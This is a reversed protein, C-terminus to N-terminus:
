MSGTAAERIVALAAAVAGPLSLGCDDNFQILSDGDDREDYAGVAWSEPSPLGAETSMEGATVMVHFGEGEPGPIRAGIAGGGMIEPEAGLQDVLLARHAPHLTAFPDRSNHFREANLLATEAEVAQIATIIKEGHEIADAPTLFNARSWCNFRNHNLWLEVAWSEASALTGAAGGTVHIGHYGLSKLFTTGGQGKFGLARLAAAFEAPDASAIDARNLAQTM